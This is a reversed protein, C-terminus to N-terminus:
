PFNIGGLIDMIKNKIQHWQMSIIKYYSTDYKLFNTETITPNNDREFNYLTYGSSIIVTFLEDLIEDRKDQSISDPLICKVGDINGALIRLREASPSSTVTSKMCSVTEETINGQMYRSAFAVFAICLTRAYRAFKIMEKGMSSSANVSEYKKIFIQHFHYDIYLADRCIRVIRATHMQDGRFIVDYYEEDYIASHRNRGTGPMQFVACLCLKGAEALNTNKYTPKYEKPATEGRKTQYFVGEDRMAQVFRVQEPSNAKLDAPRIPKQSNVAKAIELIYSYKEEDCAGQARIIKCQLWFDNDDNLKKSKYMVYITQGGNIVSFNALSIKRGDIRFSDCIITIGNNRMWFHSPATNITSDIAKDVNVVTGSKSAAIHYRLNRALLTNGHMAYLKKVSMASVNVIVAEEGYRLINGEQDILIEGSEITPRRSEAERIEAVIDSAFLVHLEIKSTDSFLEMFKSEIAQVSTKNKTASTFFVFIIRSEDGVEANLELFRKQVRENVNEFHGATMDKYFAAMKVLANFVEDHKISKYFKSQGIVIDCTESSPDSMLIDAGGDYSGDVIMEELEDDDLQLAPNRYFHARICLASFAYADTHRKLFPYSGRLSSIKSVINEYDKTTKAM